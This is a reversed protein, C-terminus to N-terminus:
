ATGGSTFTLNFTVNTANGTTTYGRSRKVQFVTDIVEKVALDRELHAHCLKEFLALEEELWLAKGLIERVGWYHAWKERRGYGAANYGAYHSANYSIHYTYVGRREVIEYLKGWMAFFETDTYMM